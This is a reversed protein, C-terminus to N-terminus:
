WIWVVYFVLFSFSLMWAILLLVLCVTFYVFYRLFFSHNILMASLYSHYFWGFLLVALITNFLLAWLFWGPGIYIYCGLMLLVVLYFKTLLSSLLIIIMSPHMDSTSSYSAMGYILLEFAVGHFILVSTDVNIGYAQLLAWYIPIILVNFLFFRLVLTVLLRLYFLWDSSYCWCFLLCLSPFVVLSFTIIFLLNVNNVSLNVLYFSVFHCVNFSFIFFFGLCACLLFLLLILLFM